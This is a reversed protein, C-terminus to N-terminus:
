LRMAEMPEMRAIRMIPWVVSLLATLFVAVMGALVDSAYLRPYVLSSLHLGKYSAEYSDSAGGLAAYDLGTQQTILLLGLGLATGIAV